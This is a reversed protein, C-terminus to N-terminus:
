KKGADYEEMNEGLDSFPFSRKNTTLTMYRMFRYMQTNWTNCFEAMGRHRKATFLVYLWHIVAVAAVLTSWLKLIIGSIVGVVIRMLAEKRETKM